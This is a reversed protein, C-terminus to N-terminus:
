FAGSANQLREVFEFFQPGVRMGGTWEVPLAGAVCLILIAQVTGLVVLNPSRRYLWCSLLGVVLSAGCLLPNPLHLVSYLGSAALAPLMSGPLVEGLRRYFFALLGYQWLLAFVWVRLVGPAADLSLRFSTSGVFWGAALTLVILPAVCILADVLTSALNDFRLGVDAAAERRATHAGIGLALFLILCVAPAAVFSDRWLWVFSLLLATMAVIEFWARGRAIM